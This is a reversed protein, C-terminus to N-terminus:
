RGIEGICNGRSRSHAVLFGDPNMSILFHILTSDLLAAILLDTNYHTLLRSVLHILM